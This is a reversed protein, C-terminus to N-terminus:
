LGVFLLRSVDYWLHEPHVLLKNSIIETFIESLFPYWDEGFAAEPLAERAM